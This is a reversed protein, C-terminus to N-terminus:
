KEVPKDAAQWAIIGGVLNYLNLMGTDALENCARVSRVGSRCHVLYTKSKDLGAVRRSFDAANVDILIAGSIHGEAFERATRVDLLVTNPQKILEAFRNADVDVFKRGPRTAPQSTPADAALLMLM